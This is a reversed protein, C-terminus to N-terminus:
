PEADCWPPGGWLSRVADEAILAQVQGTVPKGSTQISGWLQHAEAQNRLSQLHLSNSGSSPTPTAKDLLAAM